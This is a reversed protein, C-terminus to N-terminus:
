CDYEAAERKGACSVGVGMTLPVKKMEGETCARLLIGTIPCDCETGEFDRARVRSAGYGCLFQIAEIRSEELSM